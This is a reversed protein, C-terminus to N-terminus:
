VSAGSSALHHLAVVTKWNRGTAPMKFKREFFANNLKSRACGNPYHLFIEERGGSCEDGGLDGMEVSKLMAGSPRSRLFVVGVKTPDKKAQASFPNSKIIRRFDSPTRVMVAVDHGFSSKIQQELLVAVQSARRITCGFVVNGSQVYTRVNTLGLAEYASKLEAMRIRRHGGVNIGRLLSIYTPM